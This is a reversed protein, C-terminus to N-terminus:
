KDTEIDDKNNTQNSAFQYGFVVLVINKILDFLDHRMADSMLQVDWSVLMDVIFVGLLAALILAVYRTLWERKKLHKPIQSNVYWVIGAITAISILIGTVMLIGGSGYM